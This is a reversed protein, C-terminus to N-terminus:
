PCATCPQIQDGTEEKKSGMEQSSAIFHIAVEEPPEQQRLTRGMHMGVHM